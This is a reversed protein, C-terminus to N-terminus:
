LAHDRLRGPNGSDLPLGQVPRSIRWAFAGLNAMSSKAACEQTSRWRHCSLGEFAHIIENGSRAAANSGDESNLSEKGPVDERFQRGGVCHQERYAM